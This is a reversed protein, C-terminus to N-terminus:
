LFRVSECNPPMFEGLGNKLNVDVEHELILHIIELHARYAQFGFSPIPVM